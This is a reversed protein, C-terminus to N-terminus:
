ILAKALNSVTKQTSLARMIDQPLISAQLIQKSYNFLAGWKVSPTAFVVRCLPKPGRMRQPFQDIIQAKSCRVCDVAHHPIELQQCVKAADIMGTDCCRSGSKILWGTVGIVDYGADRLLLATTSSDVGGSM